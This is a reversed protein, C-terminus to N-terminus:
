TSKTGELEPYLESLSSFLKDPTSMELLNKANGNTYKQLINSFEVKIM